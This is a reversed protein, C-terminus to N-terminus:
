LAGQFARYGNVVRNGSRCAQVLLCDELLSPDEDAMERLDADLVHLMAEALRMMASPKPLAPGQGPLKHPKNKSM